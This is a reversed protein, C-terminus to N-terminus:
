EARLADVPNITIARRAPILCAAASVALLLATVGAYTLADFRSTDFLFAAIAQSALIAATLGIVLGLAVPTMGQRVILTLISRRSAGLAARVGIERTRENVTGALVGYIGIAALLLGALAFAEFLILVFHRQVESAAVLTDMTAVQVIPQDKDVSWIAERVTPAFAAPDNSTRVVLTQAADTWTWQATSIYFAQEGGISLSSQKVDGLVGAITAWPRAINGADPGVRVLHGIPDQHPFKLDALAQNILVAPPAGAIDHDNLLRGRLLPIHMTEIYGPTVAYRLAPTQQAATEGQLEMGYVDGDGSLPLQTTFGASVVGPLHRVRELADAFFRVRAADTDFRRGSTQVQMTLLHTSDFGPDVAFIHQMSRLLLGTGVLLVAALSIESVVLAHRGWQRTGTTSRASQRMGTNLDERSLQFAPVLGLIVGVVVAIGLAFLLAAPDIAMAHVQPLGPPSLAILARLAGAAVAIGLIAGITALLITETLLQRAVRSRAAGLAARLAFEARRQAGRALLLNAVNVCAILMVFFVAGLVAFLAPRVGRTLDKQLPNVMMGSPVGGSGNYGAANQQGLMQLVANLEGTAQTNQVGPRLRGIMRLHHGWERGDVPLAPNYQLPAWLAADSALMNQFTAPMVGIVTFLTDNLRVQRGVIAPDASFNRRWLTDSLIINNPGQFRDDDATFDRGLIPAIGLTRFYDASVRQGELREPRDASTMAPQWARMVALASFSQTRADLGHFTAFNVNRPGGGAGMERLMMLQRAHPYPLPDILIPKIASFIATCAGIGLALTLISTWAFGPSRAFQRLAFRIDAFISALTLTTDASTTRENIATLNGFRLLADRRAEEASMGAAINDATRLDIHSRLEADIDDQIRSRSFLNAIRRPLSM